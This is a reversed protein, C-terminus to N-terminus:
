LTWFSCISLLNKVSEILYHYFYKLAIERYCIKMLRVVDPDTIVTSQEIQRKLRRDDLNAAYGRTGKFSHGAQKHLSGRVATSLVIFFQLLTLFLNVYHISLKSM